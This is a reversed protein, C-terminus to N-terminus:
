VGLEAQGSRLIEAVHGVVMELGEDVAGILMGGLDRGLGLAHHAVGDLFREIEEVFALEPDGLLAVAAPHHM